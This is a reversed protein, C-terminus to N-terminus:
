ALTYTCSPVISNWYVEDFKTNTWPNFIYVTPDGSPPVVTLEPLDQLSKLFKTRRSVRDRLAAQVKRESSRQRIDPFFLEPLVSERKLQEFFKCLPNHLAHQNLLYYQLDSEAAQEVAETMSVKAQCQACYYAHAAYIKNFTVNTFGTLLLTPLVAQMKKSLSSSYAKAKEHAESKDSDALLKTQFHEQAQQITLISKGCLSANIQEFGFDYVFQAACKLRVAQLSNPRKPAWDGPLDWKRLDHYSGAHVRYKDRYDRTEQSSLMVSSSFLHKNRENSYRCAKCIKVNRLPNQSRPDTDTLFVEDTTDTTLPKGCEPMACLGIYRPGTLYASCVSDVQHVIDLPENLLVPHPFFQQYVDSGNRCQECLYYGKFPNFSRPDLTAIYCVNQGFFSQGCQRMSCCGQHGKGLPFLDVPLIPTGPQRRNRDRRQVATPHVCDLAGQFGVGSEVPVDATSQPMGEPVAIEIPVTQTSAQLVSKRKRQEGNRKRQEGNCAGTAQMSSSASDTVATDPSGPDVGPSAVDGGRALTVVPPQAMHDAAPSQPAATRTSPATTRLSATREVQAREPKVQPPSVPFSMDGLVICAASSQLLDSPQAKVPQVDYRAQVQKRRVPCSRKSHGNGCHECPSVRGLAICDTGDHYHRCCPCWWRVLPRANDDASASKLAFVADAIQQRLVDVVGLLEESPQLIGIFASFLPTLM